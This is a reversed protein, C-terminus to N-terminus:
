VRVKGTLLNQMLGKKQETYLELQKNLLEIEKDASSLIDAIAKQEDLSIPININLKLFNKKSLNYRTAGQALKNISQRLHEARFIYASFLPHLINTEKLRLCFSFSNLYIKEKPEFLIVCSIGVEEPTESSLTFLIDGHKLETQIENDTITVYNNTPKNLYYNQYIDLYSIYRSGKTAFDNKTKNTLGGYTYAIEGLKYIKWKDTFGNLRKKGTLLAQMLGKKQKEKYAILEKTQEIAKDWLSLIEAIKKQEELPPLLVPVAKYTANILSYRTIGNAFRGFIHLVQQLKLYYALYLGNVYKTNPRLIALHYGCVLNEIDEAIYTSIGIDDPTESDKTIVVDGKYLSYRKIENDSATAKMFNIDKTIFENYYVDTYNCLLVPTEEKYSKKDVPSTIIECIENLKLTQQKM